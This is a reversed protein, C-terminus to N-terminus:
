AGRAFAGRACIGGVTKLQAKFFHTSFFTPHVRQKASLLLIKLRDVVAHTCFFVASFALGYLVFAIYDGKLGFGIPERLLVM